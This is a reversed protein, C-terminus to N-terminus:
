DEGPAQESAARAQEAEHEQRMRRQWEARAEERERDRELRLPERERDEAALVDAVEGAVTVLDSIPRGACDGCVHLQRTVWKTRIGRTRAEARLVAECPSGCLDCFATARSTM